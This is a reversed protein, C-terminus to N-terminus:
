ENTLNVILDAYPVKEPLLDNEIMLNQLNDFYEEPIYISELWSDSEKYRKVITTLDDIDTDLFQKQIVNAIVEAENELSFKIGKNIARAFKELVERNNELFSKKTYFATYPMEGSLEGISAVVYGYGEKELMTANPEFLNVYDGTGGIYAGSLSAFDIAYNININEEKIGAKKLANLFNLAPMGGKRGVLIEKGELDQWEFDKEKSIIFQGDRKTLGAFTILYDDSGGDYVYIASETGALGIQVDGSLVAAAVKDAGLTLIVELSIGEEKFYGNEIAVYLPAYFPSHTVEALVIKSPDESYSSNNSFIVWSIFGVLIIGIFGILIGYKKM